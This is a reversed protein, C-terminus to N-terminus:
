SRSDLPFWYSVPSDTFFLADEELRVLDSWGASGTIMAWAALAGLAADREHESSGLRGAVFDRLATFEITAPKQQASAFGLGYLLAKPHSETLPLNPFRRRLLLASTPGQVVCAGQLCNPHQVTGGAASAAGRRRVIDRIMVDSRREGSPSWYLPSDIGAALVRDNPDLLSVAATVAGEAHDATGSSRVNLPLQNRHELIAWGFQRTGGPDFGLLVDSM